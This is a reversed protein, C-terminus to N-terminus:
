GRCRATAVPLIGAALWGSVEKPVFAGAVCLEEPGLEPGRSVVALEARRQEQVTQSAALPNLRFGSVSKVVFWNLVHTAEARTRRSRRGFCASWGRAQNGCGVWRLVAGGAGEEVVWEGWM